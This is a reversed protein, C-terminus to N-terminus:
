RAPGRIEEQQRRDGAVSERAAVPFQARLRGERPVTEGIHGLKGVREMLIVDMIRRAQGTPTLSAVLTRARACGQPIRDIIRPWLVPLTYKARLVCCAYRLWCSRGCRSVARCRTRRSRPGAAGVGRRVRRRRHRFIPPRLPCAYRRRSLGPVRVGGGLFRFRPHYTPGHGRFTARCNPPVLRPTCTSAAADDIDFRSRPRVTACSRTPSSAATLNGPAGEFADGALATIAEAVRKAGESYGGYIVIVATLVALSGLM